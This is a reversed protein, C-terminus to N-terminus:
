LSFYNLNRPEASEATPKRASLFAVQLLFYVTTLGLKVMGFENYFKEIQM